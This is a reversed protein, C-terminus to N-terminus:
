DRTLEDKLTLEDKGAQGPNSLIQKIPLFINSNVDEANKNYRMHISGFCHGIIQDKGNGPIKLLYM